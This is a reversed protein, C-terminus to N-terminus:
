VIDSYFYKCLDSVKMYVLGLQFCDQKNNLM